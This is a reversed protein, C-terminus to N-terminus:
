LTWDKLLQSYRTADERAAQQKKEIIAKEEKAAILDKKAIYLDLAKQQEVTLKEYPITNGRIQISLVKNDKIVIDSSGLAYSNSSEKSTLFLRGDRSTFTYSDSAVQKLTLNPMNEVSASVSGISAPSRSSRDGRRDSVRDFRSNTSSTNEGVSGRETNSAKDSKSSSSNELKTIYRQLEDIKDNADKLDSDGTKVVQKKSELKNNAIQSRLEALQKRLDENEEPTAGEKGPPFNGTKIYNKVPEEGFASKLSNYSNGIYESAEVIQDIESNQISNSSRSSYNPAFSSSDLKQESNGENTSDSLKDNNSSQFDDSLEDVVVAKQINDFMSSSVEKTYFGSSGSITDRSFVSQTFLRSNFGTTNGNKDRVTTQGTSAGVKERLAGVIEECAESGEKSAINSLSKEYQYPSIPEGTKSASQVRDSLTGLVKVESDVSRAGVYRSAISCGMSAYVLTNSPKGSMQAQKSLVRVAKDVQEPQPALDSIDSCFSDALKAYLKSCKQKSYAKFRSRILNLKKEHNIAVGKSDSILDLYSKTVHNSSPFNKKLDVARKFFRCLTRSDTLIMGLRPDLIASFELHSKLKFNGNSLIEIPAKENKEYADDKCYNTVLENNYVSDLIKYSAQKAELDGSESRQNFTNFKWMHFDDPTVSSCKKEDFKPYSSDELFFALHNSFSEDKDFSFKGIINKKAEEENEFKSTFKQCTSTQKNQNFIYDMMDTPDACTYERRLDARKDKPVDKWIEEGLDRINIAAYGQMISQAAKLASVSESLNDLLLKSELEKQYELRLSDFDDDKSVTKFAKAYCSKCFDETGIKTKFNENVPNTTLLLSAIDTVGSDNNFNQISSDFFNCSKNIDGSSCIKNDRCCRDSPIYTSPNTSKASSDESDNMKVKEEATPERVSNIEAKDPIIKSIADETAKSVDEDHIQELCKGIFTKDDPYERCDTIFTLDINKYEPGLAEKLESALKDTKDKRGYMCPKLQIVEHFKDYAKQCHERKAEVSGFVSTVLFLSYIFAIKLM